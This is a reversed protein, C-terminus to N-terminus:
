EMHIQVTNAKPQDSKAARARLLVVALIGAGVFTGAAVNLLAVAGLQDGAASSVGMGTVQLLALTTGYAGFVRGAYRDEVSSQLLSQVSVIWGTGVLGVVAVLALSLPLSQANISVLSLLGVTGVSLGLLLPAPLVKAVRSVALGGLLGGVGQATAMYGFALADGGLVERVFVVWLVNFIGQGLMATGQVAFLAAIMPQERVVRLGDLWARWLGSHVEPEAAVTDEATDVPLPPVVVFSILIAAVLLAAVDLVVVSPLGLLGLLAGGAVPGLLRAVNDNLANLANAAVLKSQDVLRPLLANEAPGFFQGIVSQLAAVVYVIWIEEPSRVLLLLLLLPVRLLNSVVMTWRRDWRDVFVGAISGLLVSPVFSAIRLLGTALVSGTQDYVYLPLAIILMWDGLLSVLGGFWLLAFNRQRLVAFM